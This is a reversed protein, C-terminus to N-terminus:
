APVRETMRIGSGPGISAAVRRVTAGFPTGGVRTAVAQADAFRDVDQLRPLSVWRLGLASFREAQRAWTETASMPVGLFAGPDPGRLGAAWWGGDTAPGLVAGVGPVELAGVASALLLPTVQPTDMGILLAPGGVDEFATALRQDLGDGRQPLLEFGAPLWWGPRGDLVLVRRGVPAAAVALLTDALSAAAIEAAQELDCPPCLRTKVRGPVPEKALVVIATRGSM